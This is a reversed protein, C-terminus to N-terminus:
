RWAHLGRKRRTHTWHHWPLPSSDNTVYRQRCITSCACSRRHFRQVPLSPLRHSLFPLARCCRIISLFTLSLHIFMCSVHFCVFVCMSTRPSVTRVNQKEQTEQTEQLRGRKRALRCGLLLFRFVASLCFGSMRVCALRHVPSPRQSGRTAQMSLMCTMITRYLWLQHSGAAPVIFSLLGHVAAFFLAM